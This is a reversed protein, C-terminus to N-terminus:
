RPLLSTLPLGVSLLLLRLLPEGDGRLQSRLCESSLSHAQLRPPAPRPHKPRHYLQEEERELRATAAPPRISVLGQVTDRQPSTYDLSLEVGQDERERDTSGIEEAWGRGRREAPLESGEDEKGRRRGSGFGISGSKTERGRRRCWLVWGRRGIEVGSRRTRSWDRRTGTDVLLSVCEM